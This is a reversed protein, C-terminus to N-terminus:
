FKKVKVASKTYCQEIKGGNVMHGAIAGGDETTTVNGSIAGCAVFNSAFAFGAMLATKKNGKIESDLVYCGTFNSNELNAVLGGVNDANTPNIKSSQVSCNTFKSNTSHAVLGGVNTQNTGNSNVISNKLHVNKITCSDCVSVLGSLYSSNSSVSINDLVLNQITVGNGYSFIATYNNFLRFYSIVM